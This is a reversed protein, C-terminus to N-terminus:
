ARRPDHLADGSRRGGRRARIEPHSLVEAQFRLQEAKVMAIEAASAGTKWHIEKRIQSQLRAFTFVSHQKTLAELVAGADRNTIAQRLQNADQRRISIVGGHDIEYQLAWASLKRQSAYLDYARRTVPHVGLAIIHIHHYDEDSHSYILSMADGMGVADLASQAAENKEEVTPDLSKPWTLVIHVCVQRCKRTKPGQNAAKFEMIQRAHEVRDATTICFGFGTSGILTARSKQGPTLKIPQNTIPDRGAGQV